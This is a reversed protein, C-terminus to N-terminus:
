GRRARAPARRRLRVLPTNGIRGLIDHDVGSKSEAVATM